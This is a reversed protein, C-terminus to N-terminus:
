RGERPGNGPPPQGTMTADTAGARPGAVPDAATRATDNRLEAIPQPPIFRTPSSEERQGPPPIDHWRRMWALIKAAEKGTLNARVRMHQLVTRYNAFPRESLPRANHCSACYLVFLRQGEVADEYCCNEGQAPSRMRLPAPGRAFESQDPQTNHCGFSTLLGAAGALTLVLGLPCRYRKTQM